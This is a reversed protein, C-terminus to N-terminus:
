PEILKKLGDVMVSVAKGGAQQVAPRFFAGPKTQSIRGRNAGKATARPVTGYEFWYPNPAGGLKRIAAPQSVKSIANPKNEPGENTVVSAALAAKLKPSADLASINRRVQASIVSAGAMYVKKLKKGAEGGSTNAIIKEMKSVIETLGELKLLGGKTILARGAM